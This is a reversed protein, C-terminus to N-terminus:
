RIRTIFLNTKELYDILLENQPDLDQAHKINIGANETNGLRNELQALRVYGDVFLPRMRISEKLFHLAKKDDGSFQKPTLLYHTGLAFLVDPTQPMLKEARRIHYIIQPGLFIKKYAPAHETEIGILAAMLIHSASVSIRDAQSKHRMSKDVWYRAEALNGQVYEMFGLSIIAPSFNPNESLLRIFEAHSDSYRHSRRMIEARAWRLTVDTKESAIKEILRLAREHEHYYTAIIVEIVIDEASLDNEYSTHLDKAECIKLAAAEHLDNWPTSQAICVLHLNFITVFAVTPLSVSFFNRLIRILIM